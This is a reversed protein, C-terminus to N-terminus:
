HGRQGHKVPAASLCYYHNIAVFLGLKTLKKHYYFRWNHESFENASITILPM